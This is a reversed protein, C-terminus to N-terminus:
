RRNEEEEAEFFVLHHLDTITHTFNENALVRIISKADMISEETAKM